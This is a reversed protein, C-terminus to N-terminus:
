LDEKITRLMCHRKEAARVAVGIAESVLSSLKEAEAGGWQSDIRSLMADAQRPLTEAQRIMSLNGYILVEEWVKYAVAFLDAVAVIVGLKGAKAFQHTETLSLIGVEAAVRAIGEGALKEFLCVADPSSYKTPRAVDGVFVEEADHIIARSLVEAVDSPPLGLDRCILLCTLAVMGTHELVSEPRVQTEMSFRRVSALGRAVAFASLLKM